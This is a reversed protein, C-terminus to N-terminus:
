CRTAEEIISFEEWNPSNFMIEFEFLLAELAVTNWGIHNLTWLIWDRLDEWFSFLMEAFRRFCKLVWESHCFVIFNHGMWKTTYGSIVNRENKHNVKVCKGRDELLFNGLIYGLKVRQSWNGAGLKLLIHNLVCKTFNLKLKLIGFLFHSM